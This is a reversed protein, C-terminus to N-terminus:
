SGPVPPPSLTRNTPWWCTDAMKSAWDRPASRPPSSPSASPGAELIKVRTGSGFRLPVVVLDARALEDDMVPVWGVVTVGPTQSLRTVAENPEGVLRLTVTGTRATLAPLIDSVFFTAADANPPYCFSGALLLSPPDAVPQDDRPHTPAEYGNPVVSVNLLGSRGADLESCLVVRDVEQAVSHQFRSWRTANLSAQARRVGDHLRASIGPGTPGAGLAALRSKIKEDELDDLDLITPGLHPRGLLEFTTAKSFWVVDYTEARWSEFVHRPVAPDEQALELPLGSSTLWRFRRGFSWSPPPRVVTKVRVNTLAPPSPAPSVGALPCSPSCTPPARPPSSM